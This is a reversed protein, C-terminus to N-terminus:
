ELKPQTVKLRRWIVTQVPTYAVSEAVSNTTGVLGPLSAITGSLSVPAWIALMRNTKLLEMLLKMLYLAVSLDRLWSRKSDTSSIYM